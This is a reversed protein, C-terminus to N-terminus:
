ARSLSVFRLKCAQVDAPTTRLARVKADGGNLSKPDIAYGCKFIGCTVVAIRWFGAVQLLLFELPQPRFKFPRLFVSLLTCALCCTLEQFRLALTGDADAMMMRM